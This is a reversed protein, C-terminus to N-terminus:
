RAKAPRYGPVTTRNYQTILGAEKSVKDYTQQLSKIARTTERRMADDGAATALVAADKQYRILTEIRRQEQTWEYRTLKTGDIEVIQASDDRYRQLEEASHTPESIGLIIPTAIHRCNWQGIPRYLRSQLEEFAKMSYQKGQYPVHDEACLMHASIEVGDAGFEKGVQFAIRQNLQRAGDLVNMRTASDLRRTLGSEYRVRLGSAAAERVSGRIAASYDTAGTQVAQVAKDITNKYATSVVTTQSLNALAGVTQEVQAELTRMLAVNQAFPLQVGPYFQEAFRYDAKAIAEFMREVEPVSARMAKAIETQMWDLNAGMRKMEVLRHVDSPLMQGIDHLHKGMAKLYATGLAQTRREFADLAAAMIPDTLM